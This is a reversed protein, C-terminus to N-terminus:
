QDKHDMHYDLKSEIRQLYGKIEAREERATTIQTELVSIRRAAEPTITLGNARNELVVLRADLTEVTKTMQGATFVMMIVLGIDIAVSGAPVRWKGPGVSHPQNNPSNM